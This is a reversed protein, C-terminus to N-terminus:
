IIFQYHGQAVENYQISANNQHALTHLYYPLVTRANLAEFTTQGQLAERYGPKLQTLPGSVDITLHGDVHLAVQGGRLLSEVAICMLGLVLRCADGTPIDCMPPFNLTVNHAKAYDRTLNAVEALTPMGPGSSLLARLNNLKHTLRTLSSKFIAQTEEDMAKPLSDEVMEYSLSLAGLPAALDHCIKAAMLQTLTLNHQMVFCKFLYQGIRLRM